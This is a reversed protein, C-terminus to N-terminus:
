LLKLVEHRVRLQEDLASEEKEAQQKNWAEHEALIAEAKARRGEDTSVNQTATRLEVSAPLGDPFFSRAAALSTEEYCPISTATVEYVYARTVTRVAWQEGNVTAQSWADDLAFFGFSMGAILGSDILALLDDGYSTRPVDIEVRLGVSDEKIRLSGNSRKGIIKSDDHDVLARIDDTGALSEAFCGPALKELFLGSAGPIPQSLSNFRAAYGILTRGGSSAKRLEANFRIEKKQTNM